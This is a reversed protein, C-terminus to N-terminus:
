KSRCEQILKDTYGRLDERTFPTFPGSATKLMEEELLPSESNPSVSRPYLAIENPGDKLIISEGNTVDAIIKSLTAAAEAVDIVKM